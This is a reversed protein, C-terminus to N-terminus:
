SGCAGRQALAIVPALLLDDVLGGLHEGALAIVLRRHLLQGRAHIQGGAREIVVEAALLLQEGRDAVLEHLRQELLGGLQQGAVLVGGLLQAREDAQPHGVDDLVAVVHEDELLLAVSISDPSRQRLTRAERLANSRSAAVASSRAGGPPSECRARSASSPM